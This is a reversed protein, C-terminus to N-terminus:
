LSVKWFSTIGDLDPVAEVQLIERSAATSSTSAGPLWIRGGMQLETAVWVESGSDGETGGASQRSRTPRDEVRAFLTQVTGYTAEGAANIGNPPAYGISQNLLDSIDM